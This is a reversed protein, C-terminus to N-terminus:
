FAEVHDLQAVHLWFRCRGCSQRPSDAREIFMAVETLTLIHTPTKATKANQCLSWRWSRLSAPLIGRNYISLFDKQNRRARAHCRQQFNGASALIGYNGFSV